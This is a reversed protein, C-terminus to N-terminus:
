RRRPKAGARRSPPRRAASTTPRAPAPLLGDTSLGKWTCYREVGASALKFALEFVLADDSNGVGPIWDPIVDLPDAFYLLAVGMLCVTYFPIQRAEGNVHEEVLTLAFDIQRQMRPRTPALKAGRVRISEAQRMVEELDGPALQACKENLYATFDQSQLLPPRRARTPAKKPM